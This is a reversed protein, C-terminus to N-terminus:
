PCTRVVRPVGSSSSGWSGEGSPCENRARALYFFAGDPVPTDEASTQPYHEDPLNMPVCVAGTVFDAANSSRVVQYVTYGFAGGGDASWTIAHFGQTPFILLNQPESPTAWAQANADNCDCSGRLDGDIDFGDCAPNTCCDPDVCDTLGDRDEDFGDSCRTESPAAAGCDTFCRSGNEGAECSGNGCCGTGGGQGACDSACTGCSEGPDCVGDSDCRSPTLTAASLEGAPSSIAIKVAHTGPPVDADFRFNYVTGWRLANTRRNDNPVVVALWTLEGAMASFSAPWDTGEQLEGSHYDVDHFGVNALQAGAPIPVTFGLAPRNSNQNQLAYEYHWWGAGLATAKAALLYPPDNPILTAEDLTGPISIGTEVVSPDLSKWAHLGVEGIHTPGSMQLVGENLLVRRWSTNNNRRGAMADDAAVYQGEAVYYAGPNALSDMDAQKVQLRKYATSGGQGWGITPPFPFSGTEPNIEFKPGLIQQNANGTSTYADSCGVGLHHGDAITCVGCTAANDAGFGHKVWSQGIQEFRGDKLRFLNQAIVPHSANDALWNAWCSGVNCADTGFSYVAIGGFLGFFHAEWLDAVILDPTEGPADCVNPSQASARFVPLLSVFVILNFVRRMRLSSM